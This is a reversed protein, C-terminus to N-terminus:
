GALRKGVGRYWEGGPTYGKVETWGTKKGKKFSIYMKKGIIKVNQMKVVDGKKTRFARQSQGAAKYYTRGRVTTFKNKKFNKTDRDGYYFDGLASKVPATNSTRKLKRGKIRYEFTWEVRGTDYPQVSFRVSLGKSSIGIVEAMMNDASGLDAAEVLKGNSFAYLKNIYMFGGDMTAIIQLYNKKPSCSMYRFSLGSVGKINKKLALKGDIYIRFNKYFYNNLSAAKLQVKETDGDGDVDRYLTAYNGRLYVKNDLTAAKVTTKGTLLLCFLLLWLPLTRTISRLIWSQNTAKSNKM